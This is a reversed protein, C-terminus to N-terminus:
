VKPRQLQQNAYFKFLTGKMAKGNDQRSSTMGSSSSAATAAATTTTAAAAAGRRSSCEQAGDAHFSSRHTASSRILTSCRCAYRNCHILIVFVPCLCLTTPPHLLLLLLRQM